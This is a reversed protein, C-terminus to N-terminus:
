NHAITKEIKELSELKILARILCDKCITKDPTDSAYDPMDFTIYPGNVRQCEDCRKLEIKEAKTIIM